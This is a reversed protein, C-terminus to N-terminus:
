TQNNNLMNEWAHIRCKFSDVHAPARASSLDDFKDIFIDFNNFNLEINPIKM